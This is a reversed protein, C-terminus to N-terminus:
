VRSDEPVPRERSRTSVVNSAMRRVKKLWRRAWAYETALIALGIPIVIFAPGPLVLLAVGILLVTAGVVSVIVRRVVKINETDWIRSVQKMWSQIRSVEFAEPTSREIGLQTRM